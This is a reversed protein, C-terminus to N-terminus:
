RLAARGSQQLFVRWIGEFGNHLHHEGPYIKPYTLLGHVEWESRTEDQDNLSRPRRGLSATRSINTLRVNLQESKAIWELTEDDWAIESIPGWKTISKIKKLKKFFMM